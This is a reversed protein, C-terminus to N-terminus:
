ICLCDGQPARSVTVETYVQVRISHNMRVGAQAQASMPLDLTTSYPTEAGRHECNHTTKKRTIYM